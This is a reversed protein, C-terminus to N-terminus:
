GEGAGNGMMLGTCCVFVLYMDIWLGVQILLLTFYSVVFSGRSRKVDKWREGGCVELERRDLDQSEAVEGDDGWGGAM